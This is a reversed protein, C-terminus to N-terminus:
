VLDNVILKIQYSSGFKEHARSAAYYKAGANKCAYFKIAGKNPQNNKYKTMKAM